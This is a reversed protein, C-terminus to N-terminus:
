EDLDRGGLEVLDAEGFVIALKSDLSEEWREDPNFRSGGGGRVGGRIREKDGEIDAELRKSRQQEVEVGSDRGELANEDKEVGEETKAKEDVDMSGNEGETETSEPKKDDEIVPDLEAKMSPLAPSRVHAVCKRQLEEPFSM